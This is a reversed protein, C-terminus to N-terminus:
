CLHPLPTRWDAEIAVLTMAIGVAYVTGVVLLVKGQGIRDALRGQFPGFAAAALVYAAAMVGARGYSDTRESVLLVIGLGTMSLPLRSWVGTFSFLAAGPRSLVDRYTTLM